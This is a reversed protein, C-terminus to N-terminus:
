RFNSVKTQKNSGLYVLSQIGKPDLYVWNNKEDLTCQGQNGPIAEFRKKFEKCDNWSKFTIKYLANGAAPLHAGVSKTKRGQELSYLNDVAEKINPVTITNSSQSSLSAQFPIVNSRAKTLLFHNVFINRRAKYAKYSASFIGQNEITLTPLDKIKDNLDQTLIEHVKKDIKRIKGITVHISFDEPKKYYKNLSLKGYASELSPPLNAHANRYIEGLSCAMENATIDAVVHGNDTIRLNTIALNNMSSIQNIPLSKQLHSLITNYDSKVTQSQVDVKKLEDDATFYTSQGFTVHFQESSTKEMLPLINSAMVDDQLQVLSDTSLSDLNSKFNFSIHAALM